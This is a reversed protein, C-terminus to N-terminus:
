LSLRGCVEYTCEQVQNPYWKVGAAGGGKGLVSVHYFSVPVAWWQRQPCMSTDKEPARALLQIVGVRGGRGWCKVGLDWVGRGFFVEKYANQSLRGFDKAAIRDRTCCDLQLPRAVQYHRVWDV